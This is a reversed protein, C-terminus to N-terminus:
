ALLLYHVQHLALCSLRSVTLRFETLVALPLNVLTLTCHIVM